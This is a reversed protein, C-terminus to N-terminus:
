SKDRSLKNLHCARADLAEDGGKGLQDACAGLLVREDLRLAHAVHVLRDVLEVHHQDGCLRAVNQLVQLSQAQERADNGLVALGHLLLLDVIVIELEQEREVLNHREAVALIDVQSLYSGECVHLRVLLLDVLRHALGLLLLGLDLHQLSGLLNAAGLDLGFLRADLGRRSRTVVRTAESVRAARVGRLKAARTSVSIRANM